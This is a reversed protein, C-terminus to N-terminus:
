HWLILPTTIFHGTWCVEYSDWPLFIKGDGYVRKPVWKELRAYKM